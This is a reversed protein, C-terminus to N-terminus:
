QDTLQPCGRFDMTIDVTAHEENIRRQTDESSIANQPLLLVNEKFFKELLSSDLVRGSEIGSQQLLSRALEADLGLVKVEGFHFQKGEDIEATLTVLGSPEDIVFQPVLFFDIFGRAGYAKRANEVGQQLAHTDLVDGDQIPFLARLEDFSFQTSGAFTMKDLRYLRGADVAISVAVQQELPDGALPRVRPDEVAAKFYGLHQWADNIRERLQDLWEPEDYSSERLSEVIRNLEAPPLDPHGRFTLEALRIHSRLSQERVQGPGCRRESDQARSPPVPLLPELGPPLQATCGPALIAWILLSFLLVQRM